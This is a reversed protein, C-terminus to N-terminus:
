EEADSVEVEGEIANKRKAAFSIGVLLAPLLTEIVPVSYLFDTTLEPYVTNGVDTELGLKEFPVNALYLIGTGGAEDEGYVHHIYDDPNKYIRKRAEELMERRTGFIIAEAPCAEVCTPLEGKSTREYCMNCKLIKPNNSEYEFKPIDFPCSIMCFRCGMCKDSRWVVAGEKTKYMANTLCASACAPQNCHMCQNKIFSESEESQYRNVLTFQEISTKRQISFVKEDDLDPKPFEHYEACAMECSRCGACMTTDVLIANFEKPNNGAKVKKTTGAIALGALGVTKLFNRRDM